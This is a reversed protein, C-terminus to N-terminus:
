ETTETAADEAFFEMVKEMKPDIITEAVTGDANVFVVTSQTAVSYEKILEAENDYDAKLVVTGEPLNAMNAQLDKEWAKCTGCWEAHFFVAFKQNGKVKNIAEASYTIYKGADEENVILDNTGTMQDLIAPDISEPVTVPNEALFIQWGFVLVVVGMLAGIFVNKGSMKAANKQKKNKM